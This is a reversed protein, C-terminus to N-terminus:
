RLKVIIEGGVVEISDARAFADSIIKYEETARYGESLVEVIRAGLLSPVPVKASSVSVSRIQVGAAHLACRVSITLDNSVGLATMTTPMNLFIEGEGAIGVNPVGPVILISPQEEQSPTSGARFKASMWANFEGASFKVIQEGPTALKQRKGEWSRSSLVPGEIYYTDGPKPAAVPEELEALSLQYDAQSSFAQAPFTTMYIFGLLAGLLAMLVAYFYVGFASPSKESAVSM